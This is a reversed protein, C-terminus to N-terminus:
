CYILSLVRRGPPAGEINRMIRQRIARADALEKLFFCHEQVGPINFTNVRAGVAIVLLDYPVHATRKRLGSLLATPQPDPSYDTAHSLATAQPMPPLKGIGFALIRSAARAKQRDGYVTPTLDEMEVAVTKKETDLGVAHGQVYSVENHSFSSRVTEAASRLDLTGM